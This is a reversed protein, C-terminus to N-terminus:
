SQGLHIRQYSRQLKEKLLLRKRLNGEEAATKM